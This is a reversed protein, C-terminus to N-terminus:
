KSSAKQAAEGQILALNNAASKLGPHLRLAEQFHAVAENLNGKNAFAVGIDNYIEGYSPNIERAKEYEALAEDLRNTRVYIDGLNKHIVEITSNFGLAKKYAEEAGKLDGKAALNYGINNEAVAYTPFIELTRQYNAIASDYDGKQYFIDGLDNYAVWCNPNRALTYTWLTAQDQYIWAQSWTLTGLLLLLGSAIGPLLWPKGSRIKETGWVIGAGAFALPGMSALYQFHDAVYSFQSFTNNFFGLAPFLAVLFYAFVFFGNRSWSGRPVWLVALLVFVALLPLYSIVAGADIIWRPYVTILDQPWLLKGLYFWVADGATALRQGLNRTDPVDSFTVLQYQQTWISLLGAVLSMLYIPATKALVRWDWRGQVWWACLGLVVPLIVTSTKSAMALVAFLLTLAYNLNEKAGGKLMKVFFLISLLFFIGSQTNKLETIWAVSETQVPHLAWLAAGLWAGPVRLSLLVRWLLLAVCAHMFVNVLHFPLPTLGWLHYEIWFTTLTLPCIDAASTTWIEKLGLPGIITANATVVSDDDWIYGAGYVPTYAVLIAWFLVLGWLWDWGPAFLKPVAGPPPVSATRPNEPRQRREKKSKKAMFDPRPRQENWRM